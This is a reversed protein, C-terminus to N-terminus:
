KKSVLGVAQRLEEVTMPRDSRELARNLATLLRV